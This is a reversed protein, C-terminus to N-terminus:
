ISESSEQLRKALIHRRWLVTPIFTLNLLIVSVPYIVTVLNLSQLAAIQLVFRFTGIVYASLTEEYPRVYTKRFTPLFAVIDLITLVVVSLTVDRTVLWLAIGLLAVIFCGWDFRTINKEGRYYALAAIAFSMLASMGTAWAGAGGGKVVQGLFIIGTILGFLFWTFIHPKTKGLYIDRFYPIYAAFGIIVAAAGFFVQM